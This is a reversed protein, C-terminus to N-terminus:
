ELIITNNGSGKVFYSDPKRLNNLQEFFDKRMRHCEKLYPTDSDPSYSLVAQYANDLWVKDVNMNKYFPSAKCYEMFRKYDESARHNCSSYRDSIDFFKDYGNLNQQYTFGVIVNFNEPNYFDVANIEVHFRVISDKFGYPQMIVNGKGQEALPDNAGKNPAENCIDCSPILNYYCLAFFPYKRKPLFHDIQRKSRSSERVVEMGCYPCIRIKTGQIFDNKDITDYGRKFFIEYCIENFDDYPEPNGQFYKDFVGAGLPKFILDDPYTNRLLREILKKQQKYSLSLFSELMDPRILSTLFRRTFTNSGVGIQVTRRNKVPLSFTEGNLFSEIVPRLIAAKASCYTNLDADQPKLLKYM